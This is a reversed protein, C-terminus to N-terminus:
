SGSSRGLVVARVSVSLSDVRLVPSAIGPTSETLLLRRSTISGACETLRRDIARVGSVTNVYM